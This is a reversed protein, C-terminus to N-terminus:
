KHKFISTISDLGLLLSSTYFCLDLCDPSQKEYLVCYVTCGLCAVWGALGALRKSSTPSDASLAQRIFNLFRNM